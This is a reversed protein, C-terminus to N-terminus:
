MCNSRGIKIVGQGLTESDTEEEKNKDDPCISAEDEKAPM